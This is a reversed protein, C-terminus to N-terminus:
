TTDASQPSTRGRRRISRKTANLLYDRFEADNKDSKSQNCRQCTWQLNEIVHLGGRALPTKHDLHGKGYLEVGCYPCLDGQANRLQRLLAVTVRDSGVASMDRARRQRAYERVQEINRSRWDAARRNALERHALRYERSRERMEEPHEKQWEAVRKRVLDYHKDSWAKVRRIIVERNAQYYERRSEVPIKAADEAKCDVCSGSGTYRLAIHGRKCSIGTFYTQAGALRAAKRPMGAVM